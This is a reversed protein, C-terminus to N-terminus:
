IQGFFGLEVSRPFFRNEEGSFTGGRAKEVNRQTLTGVFDGSIGMDFLLQGAGRREALAFPQHPRAYDALGPSPPAPPAAQALDGAVATAGALGGDPPRAGAARPRGSPRPRRRPPPRMCAPPPLAPPARRRPRPRRACCR